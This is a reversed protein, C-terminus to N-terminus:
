VVEVRVMAFETLRGDKAKIRGGTIQMPVFCIAHHHDCFSRGVSTPEGCFLYRGTDRPGEWGTGFRCQRDRLEVLPVGYGPEFVAEARAEAAALTAEKSLRPKPVIPPASARAQRLLDNRVQVSTGKPPIVSDPNQREIKMRRRFAEYKIGVKTCIERDPMGARMCAAIEPLIPGWVISECRPERPSTVPKPKARALRATGAPPIAPNGRKREHQVVKKLHDLTCGLRSAMIEVTIGGKIMRGISVIVDDTWVTRPWKARGEKARKRARSVRGIITNRTVGLRRAIETMGVGSDALFIAEAVLEDTLM